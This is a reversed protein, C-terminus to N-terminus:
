RSGVKEIGGVNEAGNAAHEGGNGESEKGRAKGLGAGERRYEALGEENEVVM